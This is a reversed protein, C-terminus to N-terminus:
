FRFYWNIATLFNINKPARNIQTQIQEYVEIKIRDNITYCFGVSNRVQDVTKRIPHNLPTFFEFESFVQWYYNIKYKVNIRNRNYVLPRKYGDVLHTYHLSQIRITGGLSWKNISKTFDIDGYVLQRIDYFNKLNRRFMFRYNFNTSINKTIKCKVGGDFFAFGLEQFDYTMIGTTMATFSFRKSVKKEVNISLMGRFDIQNQAALTFVVLHLVALLVIRM